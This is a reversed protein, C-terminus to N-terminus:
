AKQYHESRNIIELVESEPLDYWNKYASAVAFRFVNKIHPCFVRDVQPEVREVTRQPATPVAVFIHAPKYNKIMKAAALMTFGSALGDDILFITKNEIKSGLHKIYDHEKQYFDLRKRIEQKTTEISRKKESDSLDLQHLLPENILVTGDTTVSGFGAEPNSPIKIKRVILLDYALGFEECFGEAVPVGGNPIAFSFFSQPTQQIKQSLKIDDEQIYNAVRLGAEHRSKYRKFTM